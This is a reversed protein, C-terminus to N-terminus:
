FLTLPWILEACTFKNSVAFSNWYITFLSWYRQIGRPGTPEECNSFLMFPSYRWANIFHDAKRTNKLRTEGKFRQLNILFVKFSKKNKFASVKDVCEKWIRTNMQFEFWKYLIFLSWAYLEYMLCLCWVMRSTNKRVAQPYPSLIIGRWIYQMHIFSRTGPHVVLICIPLSIAGLIFIVLM